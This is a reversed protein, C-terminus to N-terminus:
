SLPGDFHHYIHAMHLLQTIQLLHEYNHQLLPEVECHIEARQSMTQESLNGFSQVFYLSSCWLSMYWNM